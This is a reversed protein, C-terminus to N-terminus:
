KSTRWVPVYVTDNHIRYTSPHALIPSDFGDAWEITDGVLRRKHEELDPQDEQLDSLTNFTQGEGIESFPVAKLNHKKLTEPSIM